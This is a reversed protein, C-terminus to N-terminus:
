PRHACAGLFALLSSNISWYLGNMRLEGEDGGGEGSSGTTTKERENRAACNLSFTFQPPVAHFPCGDLVWQNVYTSLAHHQAKCIVRGPGYLQQVVTQLEVLSPGIRSHLSISAILRYSHEPSILQGISVIVIARRKKQHSSVSLIHLRQQDQLPIRISLNLAGTREIRFSERPWNHENKSVWKQNM